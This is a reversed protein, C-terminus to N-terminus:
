MARMKVAKKVRRSECSIWQEAVDRKNYFRVVARSPLGPKDCGVRHPSRDPIM